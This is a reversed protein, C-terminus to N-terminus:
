PIVIVPLTAFVNARENDYRLAVGSVAATSTVELTGEFDEFGTPFWQGASRRRDPSVGQRGESPSHSGVSYQLPKAGLQGYSARLVATQRGEPPLQSGASLQSPPVLQGAM